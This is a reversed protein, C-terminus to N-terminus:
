SQWKASWLTQARLHARARCRYRPHLSRAARPPCFLRQASTEARNRCTHQSRKPRSNEQLARTRQLRRLGRFPAGQCTHPPSKSCSRGCTGATSRSGRRCPRQSWPPSSPAHEENAKRHEKQHEQFLAHDRKRRNRRRRDIGNHREAHRIKHVAAHASQRHKVNYHCCKHRCQDASGNDDLVARINLADSVARFRRDGKLFLLHLACYRYLFLRAFPRTQCKENVYDQFFRGFLRHSRSLKEM